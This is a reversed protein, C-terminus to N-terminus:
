GGKGVGEGAGVDMGVDVDADDVDGDAEVVPVDRVWAAVDVDRERGLVGSGRPVHAELGFIGRQPAPPQQTSTAAPAFAHADRTFDPLPSLPPTQTQPHPHPHPPTRPSSSHLALLPPSSLARSPKAPGRPSIVAATMARAKGKGKDVPPRATRPTIPSSGLAFVRTPHRTISDRSRQSSSKALQRLDILPSAVAPNPAPAPTHRDDLDLDRDRRRRVDGTPPPESDSRFSLRDPAATTQLRRKFKTSPSGAPSPIDQRSRAPTRLPQSASGGDPQSRPFPPPSPLSASLFLGEVRPIVPPKILRDGHPPTSTQLQSPFSPPLFAEAIHHISEPVPATITRPTPSLKRVIEPSEARSHPTLEANSGPPVSRSAPTVCEADRNVAQAEHHSMRDALGDGRFYHSTTYDRHPSAKRKRKMAKAVDSKRRKVIPFKLPSLREADETSHLPDPDAQSLPASVVNAQWNEVRERIEGLDFTPVPPRPYPNVELQPDDDVVGQDKRNGASTQHLSHPAKSGSCVGQWRGITCGLRALESVHAWKGSSTDRYAATVAHRFRRRLQGVRDLDVAASTPSPPRQIYDSVSALALHARSLRVSFSGSVGSSTSSPNPPFCPTYTSM